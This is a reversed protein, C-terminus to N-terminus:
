ADKFCGDRCSPWRRRMSRTSSVVWSPAFLLLLGVCMAVPWSFLSHIWGAGLRCFLESTLLLHTFERLSLMFVGVRANNEVTFCLDTHLHMKSFFNPDSCQSLLWRESELRASTAQFIQHFQCLQNICTICLVMACTLTALPVMFESLMCGVVFTSSCVCAFIYITTCFTLSM